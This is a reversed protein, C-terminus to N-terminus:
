KKKPERWRKRLRRVVEKTESLSYGDAHLDLLADGLIRSSAPDIDDKGLRCLAKLLANAVVQAEPRRL